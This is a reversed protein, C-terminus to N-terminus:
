RCPTSTANKIPLPNFPQKSSTKRPREELFDLVSGRGQNATFHVQLAPVMSKMRTRSQSLLRPSTFSRDYTVAPAVSYYKLLFIRWPTTSRAMSGMVLRRWCTTKQCSCREGTIGAIFSWNWLNQGYWTWLSNVLSLLRSTRMGAIPVQGGYFPLRQRAMSKLKVAGWFCPKLINLIDPCEDMEDDRNYLMTRATCYLRDRPCSWGDAELGALYWHNWLVNQKEWREQAWCPWFGVSKLQQCYADIVLSTKRAANWLRQKQARWGPLKVLNGSLLM